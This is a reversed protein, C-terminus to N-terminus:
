FLVLSQELPRRQSKVFNYQYSLTKLLRITASPIPFIKLVFYFSNKGAAIASLDLLVEPQQQQPHPFIKKAGEFVKYSLTM